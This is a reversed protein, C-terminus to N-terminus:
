GREGVCAAFSRDAARLRDLGQGAARGDAGVRASGPSETDVSDHYFPWNIVRREEDYLAVFMNEADLLESLINTSGRTSRPMDDAAAAMAAIRYLAIQTRTERTQRGTRGRTPSRAELGARDSTLEISM